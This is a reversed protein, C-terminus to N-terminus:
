TIKKKKLNKRNSFDLLQFLLFSYSLDLQIVYMNLRMSPVNWISQINLETLYTPDWKLLFQPQAMMLWKGFTMWILTSGLSLSSSQRVEFSVRKDARSFHNSYINPCPTPLCSLFLDPAVVWTSKPISLPSPTQHILPLSQTHNFM